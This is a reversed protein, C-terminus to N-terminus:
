INIKFYQILGNELSYYMWPRFFVGQNPELLINMYYDWDPLYNFNPERNQMINTAGSKHRYLNFTTKEFCVFFCWENISSFAESQIKCNYPKRFFGSKNKLVTVSKDLVFSLTKSLDPPIINTKSDYGNEKQVFSLDKGVRFLGEIDNDTYFDTHFALDIM